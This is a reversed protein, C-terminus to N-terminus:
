GKQHRIFPTYSPRDVRLRGNEDFDHDANFALRPRADFGAIVAAQDALVSRLRRQLDDAGQGSHYGHVGNVTVPELVSFGLYRLTYAAPWLLLALDGEKGDFGCEAEKAGTTVCFLATKDTCLGADFRADVRHLAGHVLVREFWGKLIAPPSFWWIPFHFIIRDAQRIKAVEDQVDKPLVGRAASREQAKLPDFQVDEPWDAYHYPAEVPDFGLVYLDSWLVKHGANKSAQVTADAWAANFSRRDPHALVVLTTPM